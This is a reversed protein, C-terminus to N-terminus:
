SRLRNMERRTGLSGTALAFIAPDKASVGFLVNRLQVRIAYGFDRM